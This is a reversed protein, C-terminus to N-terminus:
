LVPLDAQQATLRDTPMRDYSDLMRPSLHPRLLDIADRPSLGLEVSAIKIAIGPGLQLDDILLAGLEEPPRGAALHERAAPYGKGADRAIRRRMAGFVLRNFVLCVAAIALLVASVEFLVVHM